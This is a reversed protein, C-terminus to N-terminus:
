PESTSGSDPDVDADPGSEPDDSRVPRRVPAGEVPDVRSLPDDEHGRLDDIAEAAQSTEGQRAGAAGQAGALIQAISNHEVEHEAADVRAQEIARAIPLGDVADDHVAMGRTPDPVSTVSGRSGPVVQSRLLEDSARADGRYRRVRTVADEGDVEGM